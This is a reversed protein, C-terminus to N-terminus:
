IRSSLVNKKSGPFGNCFALKDSAVVLNETSIDKKKYLYFEYSMFIEMKIMLFICNLPSEYIGFTTCGDGNDTEMM